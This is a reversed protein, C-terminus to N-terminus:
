QCIQAANDKGRHFSAGCWFVISALGAFACALGFMRNSHSLYLVNVVEIGLSEITMMTMGLLATATGKSIKTSFLVYRNLPTGVIGAGFFHVILGPMLWIYHEGFMMSMIVMMLLGIAAIIFGIWILVKVTHKHTMKHLFMVGLISAGFVPLQWLGYQIVTLKGDLVLIVPALGIWALCPLYLLGLAITALMFSRNQILAKYNNFIVRISLSTVKIQEGDLKMKGVTEPMYRWLGWLAILAPAAIIVFIFRWSFYHIFLAGLVPGLLPAIVSVSSMIAILRIADMEAFIEQLTAYGIVAIFCLGMGQFFRAALFQDISNSCAIFVTCLFFFSAGFIMLPRRGYRDSVPGLILLLSAGGLLYMTLSSAIATEPGHFSAIVSIMGPMIMDNAVYTLFEYLVLFVAFQYAQKRTIDILPQAM